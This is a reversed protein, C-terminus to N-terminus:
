VFLDYLVLAPLPTQHENTLTGKCKIGALLLSRSITSESRMNQLLVYYHDSLKKRRKMGPFCRLPVFRTAFSDFLVEEM